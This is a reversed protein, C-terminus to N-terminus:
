RYFSMTIVCADASILSITTVDGGLYRVTPNLESASGNTVDASPVAATGNVDAYFDCTSAFLVTKAKGTTGNSTISPVTESEAVGAALVKADITTAQRIAYSGDSTMVEIEEGTGAFSGSPLFLFLGSLAALLLRKM